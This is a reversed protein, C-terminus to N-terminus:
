LRVSTPNPLTCPRPRVTTAPKIGACFPRRCAIRPMWLAGWCTIHLPFSYRNIRKFFTKRSCPRTGKLDEVQDGCSLGRLSRPERRWSQADRQADRPFHFSDITHRGLESSRLAREVLRFSFSTAWLSLCPWFCCSSPFAWPKQRTCACM